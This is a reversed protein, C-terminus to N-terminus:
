EGEKLGSFCRKNNPNGERADHNIYDRIADSIFKRWLWISTNWQKTHNVVEPLSVAKIIIEDLPLNGSANIFSKIAGVAADHSRTIEAFTSFSM